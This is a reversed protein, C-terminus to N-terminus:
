VSKREIAVRSFMVPSSSRLRSSSITNQRPVFMPMRRM